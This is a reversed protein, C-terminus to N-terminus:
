GNFFDEPVYIRWQRNLIGGIGRGFKVPTKPLYPHLSALNGASVNWEGSYRELFLGLKSVLSPTRYQKVYEVIRDGRIEEIRNVAQM